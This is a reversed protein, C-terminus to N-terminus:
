SGVPGAETSFYPTEDTGKADAQEKSRTTGGIAASAEAVRTANGENIVCEAWDYRFELELEMLDDDAYALEGYKVSTIFPNKMTWSEIIAGEADLQDVKLTGISAAAKGKSMTELQNADGPLTYGAARIMSNMQAVANVPHVPDVFTISIKAWEVKGPFYFKHNLYTHDSETVTFNPKTFSKAWWIIPESGALGDIQVRFRYKRKPDKSGASLPTSWFAM